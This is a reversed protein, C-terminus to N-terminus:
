PHVTVTGALAEPLDYVAAYLPQCGQRQAWNKNGYDFHWWESSIGTFGARFMVDRLLARNRRATEDTAQTEYYDAYSRPSFEDFDSGMHLPVGDPGLITLDVAGGSSHGYSVPLGRRPLAVFDDAAACLEGVTRDQWAPELALQCLYDAYLRYQVAYPRWGDYVLFTHGPPLLAAAQLVRQAVGARLLGADVSGPIGRRYYDNKCRIAGGSVAAIDVLPENLFTLQEM